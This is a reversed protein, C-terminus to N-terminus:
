GPPFNFFPHSGPLSKQLGWKWALYGELEQRQTGTLVSNYILVEQIFGTLYRGNFSSSLQLVTTGTFNISGNLLTTNNFISTPISTGGQTGNL